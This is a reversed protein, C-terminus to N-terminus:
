PPTYAFPCTSTCALVLDSLLNASEEELSHCGNMDLLQLKAPECSLQFVQLAKCQCCRLSEVNPAVVRIEKLWSCASLNLSVLWSAEYAGAGPTLVSVLNRSGALSIRRAGRDLLLVTNSGTANPSGNAATLEELRGWDLRFLTDGFDCGTVVLKRLATERPYAEEDTILRMIGSETIQRAERLSLETLAPLSAISPISHDSIHTEALTLKLLSQAPELIACLTMDDLGSCRSLDLTVLASTFHPNMGLIWLFRSQFGCLRLSHLPRSCHRLMALSAMEEEPDYLAIESLEALAMRVPEEFCKSSRALTLIASFSFHRVLIEALVDSPLFLPPKEETQEAADVLRETTQFM